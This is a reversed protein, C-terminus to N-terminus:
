LAQKDPMLAQHPALCPSGAHHPAAGRLRGDLAELHRFYHAPHMCTTTAASRNGDAAFSDLLTSKEEQSLREARTGDSLRASCQQLLLEAAGKTYLRACLMGEVSCVCFVRLRGAKPGEASLRAPEAPLVSQKDCGAQSPYRCQAYFAGNSVAFGVMHVPTCAAAQSWLLGSTCCLWEGHSRACDAHKCPQRLLIPESVLPDSQILQCLLQVADNILAICVNM